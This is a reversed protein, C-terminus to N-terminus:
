RNNYFDKLRRRILSTAPVDKKNVKLYHKAFTVMKSVLNQDLRIWVTKEIVEQIESAFESRFMDPMMHVFCSFIAYM